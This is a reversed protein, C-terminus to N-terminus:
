KGYGMLGRVKSLEELFRDVEEETNYFAFSVRCTSKVGLYDMLPQACHHGARVCVGARGLIDATDHPHVGDVLFTVIGKHDKWDGSGLVSIGSTDKMGLMARKTLVEERTEILEWGVSNIFDIAADLGVAGGVNVTGAEFKHPTEAYTVRDWHVTQIMEGGYMFPSMADLLEKRGYLVGIGMPAFMKHGSFSLFDCDLDKVDVKMHPVSQAGDVSILAGARHVKEAIHKIDNVRGLVNSVQTLAVIRTKESLVNDLTEDSIYGNEDPDLRVIRAKKKEAMHKWPLFDSHHEMVSVVIEDGENLNDGCWSYALLNLAESANRVFVINEPGDANIFAATKARANEYRETARESLDYVGRFPNANDEEYYKRVADLVPLPKQTTAANDLYAIDKSLLPFLKRYEQVKERM